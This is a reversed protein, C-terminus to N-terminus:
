VLAQEATFGRREFLKRVKRMARREITRASERSCRLEKAIGEFTAGDSHRRLLVDAERPPLTALVERLVRGRRELHASDEPGLERDDPLLQGLEGTANRGVPLAMSIPEGPLAQTKKVTAVSERAIEAIAEQTPRLGRSTLHEVAKGIKRILDSQGVPVRITRSQNANARQIAQRVWWTAVTSFRYGRWPEFKDVAKLLGLNGEQIRDTLAMNPMMMKSAINVVLPLNANFIKEIARKVHMRQRDITRILRMLEEAPMLLRDAEAWIVEQAELVDQVRKALADAYESGKAIQEELLHPDGIVPLVEDRYTAVPMGAERCLQRVRREAQRAPDLHRDARGFADSLVTHPVRFLHLHNALRKRVEEAGTWDREAFTRNYADLLRQLQGFRRSIEEDTPAEMEIATADEVKDALAQNRADIDRFGSIATTLQHSRTARYAELFTEIAAPFAAVTRMACGSAESLRLSLEREQEPKLLSYRRVERMYADMPDTSHLASGDEGNPPLDMELHVEELLPATDEFGSESAGVGEDYTTM